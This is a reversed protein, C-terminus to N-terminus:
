KRYKVGYEKKTIGHYGETPLVTGTQGVRVEEMLMVSEYIRFQKLHVDLRIM